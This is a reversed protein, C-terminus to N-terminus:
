DNLEVNDPLLVKVINHEKMGVIRFSTSSGEFEKTVITEADTPSVAKVMFTEKIKKVKGNDDETSFQTTVMYWYNVREMELIKKSKCM